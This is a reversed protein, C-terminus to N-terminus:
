VKLNNDSCFRQVYWATLGPSSFQYHEGEEVPYQETFVDQFEKSRKEAARAQYTVDWLPPFTRPAKSKDRMKVRWKRQAPKDLSRGMNAAMTDFSVIPTEPLALLQDSARYTTHGDHYFTGEQATETKEAFGTGALRELCKRNTAYGSNRLTFTQGRALARVVPLDEFLFEIGRFKGYKSIPSTM